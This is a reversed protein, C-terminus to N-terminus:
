GLHQHLQFRTAAAHRAQTQIVVLRKFRREGLAVIRMAGVDGDDFAAVFGARVAHHGERATGLAAAGAFAHERFSALQGAHAVSFDLEQPLVDIAIAIGRRGAEVECPQQARHTFHIANAAHAEGRGMRAIEDLIDNIGDVVIWHEAIVDM